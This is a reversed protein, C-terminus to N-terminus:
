SVVVIWSKGPRGAPTFNSGVSWSSRSCKSPFALGASDRFLSCGEDVLEGGGDLALVADAVRMGLPKGTRVCTRDLIRMCALVDLVTFKDTLFEIENREEPTLL